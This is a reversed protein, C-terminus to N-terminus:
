DDKNIVGRLFKQQITTLGRYYPHKKQREHVSKLIRLILTRYKKYLGDNDIIRHFITAYYTDEIIVDVYLKLLFKIM